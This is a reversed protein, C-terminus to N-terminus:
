VKEMVWKFWTMGMILSQTRLIRVDSTMHNNPGSHPYWTPNSITYTQNPANSALNATFSQSTNSNGSQESTTESVSMLDTGASYLPTGDKIM